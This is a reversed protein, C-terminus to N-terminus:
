IRHGENCSCSPDKLVHRFKVKCPNSKRAASRIACISDYVCFSLAYCTSRALSFSPYPHQPLSSYLIFSTVILFSSHHNFHLRDRYCDRPHHLRYHNAFPVFYSSSLPSSFLLVHYHCIFYCLCGNSTALTYLFLFYLLSFNMFSIIPLIHAVFYYYVSDLIFRLFLLSPCETQIDQMTERCPKKVDSTVQNKTHSECISKEM